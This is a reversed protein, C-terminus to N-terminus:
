KYEAIVPAHDSSKVKERSKYDIHCEVLNTVANSTTIISDIRMGKHQEFSGARYDWWSFEKENPYLARFNDIFGSNLITRLKVKEGYTACTTNALKVPDYM